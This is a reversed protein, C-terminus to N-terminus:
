RRDGAADVRLGESSAGIAPRGVAKLIGELIMLPTPPCGAVVVDVPLLSGLGGLLVEPSRKFLEAGASCGGVAVVRKPSPMSAYTERIIPAMSRTIVGTVLLLDAHRPSPTFTFGFRSLDYVASNLLTLESECGNCSGGDVHRIALSLSLPGSARAIGLAPTSGDPLTDPLEPDARRPYTTTRPGGRLARLWGPYVMTM